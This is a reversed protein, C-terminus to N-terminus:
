HHNPAFGVFIVVMLWVLLAVPLVRFLFYSLLRRIGVQATERTKYDCQDCKLRFGTRLGTSRSILGVRRLPLNCKHCNNIIDSIMDQTM